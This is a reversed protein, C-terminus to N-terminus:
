CLAAKGKSVKSVTSGKSVKSVKSSSSISIIRDDHKTQPRHFALEQSRSLRIDINMENLHSNSASLYMELLSFVGFSRDGKQEALLIEGTNEIETSM